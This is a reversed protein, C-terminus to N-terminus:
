TAGSPDGSSYVTRPSGLPAISRAAVEEQGSYAVHDASATESVQFFGLARDLRQVQRQLSEAAAGANEVLTANQQTFRDMQTIAANVQEINLTQDQSARTIDMMIRAVQKTSALIESMRRGAETVLAGGHGIREVSNGILAAIEKAASASRQALGRVEAAVVAFSRGHEGARAAEVAANLALINTQFAIGDIVSIIDVIRQSSETIANMTEVVQGVVEGGRSAIDSSEAALLSAKRASEANQRVTATLGEMSAATEELSSAQAETRSSLNVNGDAIEAAIRHVGDTAARVHALSGNLREHMHAIADFLARTEDRGVAEIKRTLDGAAVDRAVAIGGDLSHLISRVLLWGSVAVIVLGVLGGAACVVLVLYFTREARKREDESSVALRKQLAEAEVRFALYLPTVRTALLERARARDSARAADAFPKLAQDLYRAQADALKMVQWANEDQTVRERVRRLEFAMAEVNRGIIEIGDGGSAGPATGAGAESFISYASARGDSALYLMRALANAPDFRDDIMRELSRTTALLGGMGVLWGAILLFAVLLTMLVVRMRITLAPM